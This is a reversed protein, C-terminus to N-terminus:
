LAPVLVIPSSGRIFPVYSIITTKALARADRLYQAYAHTCREAPTQRRVAIKEVAIVGERRLLDLLYRLAPADGRWPGVRQARDRLYRVLHDSSVRRLAVGKQQLWRSFGAALLVQRHISDQAYGLLRQSQVFAGIYAALPGDPPRSLVIRNNIICKV